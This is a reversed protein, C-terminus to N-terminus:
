KRLNRIRVEFERDGVEVVIIPAWEIEMMGGEVLGTILARYAVAANKAPNSQSVSMRVFQVMNHVSGGSDRLDEATAEVLTREM